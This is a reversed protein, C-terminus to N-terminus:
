LRHPTAPAPPASRALILGMAARRCRRSTTLLHGQLSSGPRRCGPQVPGRVDGDDALQGAQRGASPCRHGLLHGACKTRNRGCLLNFGGTRALIRALRPGRLRSPATFNPGPRQRPPPCIRPWLMAPASPLPQQWAGVATATPGPSTTAWSKKGAAEALAGPWVERGTGAARAAQGADQGPGAAEIKKPRLRFHATM